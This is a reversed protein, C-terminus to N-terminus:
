YGLNLRQAEATLEDLVAKSVNDEFKGYNFAYSYLDFAPGISSQSILYKDMSQQILAIFKLEDYSIGNIAIEM